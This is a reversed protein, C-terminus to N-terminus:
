AHGTLDAPLTGKAQCDALLRIVEMPGAQELGFAALHFPMPLMVLRDPHRDRLTLMVGSPAHANIHDLAVQQLQIFHANSLALAIPTPTPKLMVGKDLMHHESCLVAASALPSPMLIRLTEIDTSGRNALALAALAFGWDTIDDRSYLSGNKETHDTIIATAQKLHGIMVKFLAEPDRLGMDPITCEFWQPKDSTVITMLLILTGRQQPIAKLHTMAHDGFRSRRSPAIEMTCTWGTTNAFLSPEESWDSRKERALLVIRRALAIVVDCTERGGFGIWDNPVLVNTIPKTSYSKTLFIHEPAIPTNSM